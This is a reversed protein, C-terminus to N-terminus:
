SSRQLQLRVQGGEPTYKIANELLNNVVQEIYAGHARVQLDPDIQRQMSINKAEASAQQQAVGAETIRSITVKEPKSRHASEVRSLQLWLHVMESMKRVETLMRHITEQYEEQSRPKRLVIEADRGMSSLPTMLEHAAASTF